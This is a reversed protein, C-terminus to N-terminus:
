GEPRGGRIIRQQMGALTAHLAERVGPAGLLTDLDAHLATWAETGEQAMGVALVHRVFSHAIVGLLADALARLTGSHEAGDLIVTMGHRDDDVVARLLAMVDRGVDAVTEPHPETGETMM